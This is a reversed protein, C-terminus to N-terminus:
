NAGEDPARPAEHSAPPDQQVRKKGPIIAVSTVWSVLESLSDIPVAVMGRPVEGRRVNEGPMVARAFGASM